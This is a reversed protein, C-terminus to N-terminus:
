KNGKFAVRMGCHYRLRAGERGACGSALPRLKSSGISAGGPKGKGVVARGAVQSM